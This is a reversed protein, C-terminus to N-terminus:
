TRQSRQRKVFAVFDEQSLTNVVESPRLAAKRAVQVGYRIAGLGESSHADTNIAFKLRERYTLAWRWDLDLRYPSANIEVVTGREACAELVAGVDFSYGARRLLLRGTPHGLVTVLPHTVARLLRETQAAESLGFHSHVSAVVYDLETLLDDPFDLRGDELIDVESGALINLGARRLEAVEKLQARLREPTLGRAYHAAQSHDAIGLYCDPGLSMAARAMESLSAAGDSYTSHTHIYGRIDSVKILEAPAPLHPWLQDHEAERYEAPREAQGLVQWFEAATPTSLLEQSRRLGQEGLTLGQQAAQLSLEQRYAEPSAWWVEAAGRAQPSTAQVSFQLGNWEGELTAADLNSVQGSLAAAVEHAQATVLVSARAVTELGRAAEGSPTPDFAALLGCLEGSLNLATDLRQRERASLAFELAETLSQATKAGFGKIQAVAGGELGQRLAELSDIGALWLARVKKPGLGRVELLDLLGTPLEGAAEQLPGFTGTQDAELLAAALASGVKPVGKFGAAVLIGWEAHNESQAELSRAASRYAQARFSEAGLVDLLDATLNLARVALKLSFASPQQTQSM